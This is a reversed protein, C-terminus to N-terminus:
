ASRRLVEADDLGLDIGKEVTRELGSLFRDVLIQLSQDETGSAGEGTVSDNGNAKADPLESTKLTQKSAVDAVECVAFTDLKSFEGRRSLWVRVRFGSGRVRRSSCRGWGGLFAGV